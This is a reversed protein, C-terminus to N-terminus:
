RPLELLARVAHFMPYSLKAQISPTLAPIRSPIAPILHYVMYLTGPM